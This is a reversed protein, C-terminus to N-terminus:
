GLVDPRIPTHDEDNAVFPAFVDLVPPFVGRTRSHDAAHGDLGHTLDYGDKAGITREHSCPCLGRLCASGKSGVVPGISVVSHVEPFGWVIHPPDFKVASPVCVPYPVCCM